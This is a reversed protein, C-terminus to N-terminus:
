ASQDVADTESTEHNQHELDTSLRADLWATTVFRRLLNRISQELVPAVEPRPEFGGAESSSTSRFGRWGLAIDWGTATAVANIRDAARFAWIAGFADRFDIWVRDIPAQTTRPRFRARVFAVALALGILVLAVQSNVAPVASAGPRDGFDVMGPVVTCQAAAILLSSLWFKTPGYNVVTMVISGTLLLWWLWGIQFKGAPFLLTPFAPLALVVWWSFVIFSWERNQPRKAGLVAMLPCFMTAHAMYRIAALRAPSLSPSPILALAIECGIIAVVCLVSWTWPAVLTTERLAPRVFLLGILICCGVTTILATAGLETSISATPGRM